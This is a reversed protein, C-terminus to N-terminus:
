PTANDADPDVGLTLHARVGKAIDHKHYHLNLLGGEAGNGPYISDEDLTTRPTTNTVYPEIDVTLLVATEDFFLQGTHATNGGEYGDDSFTGGVHVKVHVHICRGQYWGPFLTTFRVIGHRDTLQSGRLFTLDDTPEAHGGGGGGPGGSPPPDTPIDTPIDTPTGTPAPGGGGGGGSGMATYGSYLGTADCHWIDVAAHKLPKCTAADIVKLRLDLPIGERDETIDQRFLDYDLYYPGETTEATLAYCAETASASADATTASAETPSSASPPPRPRPPPPPRARPPV